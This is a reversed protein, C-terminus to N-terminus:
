PRTRAAVTLTVQGPPVNALRRNWRTYRADRELLRHVRSTAGDRAVCRDGERDAEVRAVAGCNQVLDVVFSRTGGPDSGFPTAGVVMQVVRDASRLM